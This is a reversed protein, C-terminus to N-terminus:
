ATELRRKHKAVSKRTPYMKDGLIVSQLRGFRMMKHLGQRSVKLQEQAEPVTLVDKVYTRKARQRAMEEALVVQVRNRAAITLLSEKCCGCVYAELGEVEIPKLGKPRFLESIKRKLTMSGNAGCSPCNKWRKQKM